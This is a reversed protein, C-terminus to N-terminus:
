GCGVAGEEVFGERAVQGVKAEGLFILRPMFRTSIQTLKQHKNNLKISPDDQRGRPFRCKSTSEPRGQKESGEQTLGNDPM